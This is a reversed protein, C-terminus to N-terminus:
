KVSEWARYGGVVNVAKVGYEGLIGCARKSRTGAGCHVYVVGFESIETIRSVIEDIPINIAGPIHGKKYDGGGRVDIVAANGLGNEINYKLELVTIDSM